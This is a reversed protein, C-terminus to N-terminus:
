GFGDGDRAPDDGHDAFGVTESSTTSTDRVCAERVRSESNPYRKKGESRPAPFTDVLFILRDGDGEDRIEDITVHAFAGPINPEWILRDGVLLEGQLNHSRNESGDVLLRRLQATVEELKNIIEGVAAAEITTM